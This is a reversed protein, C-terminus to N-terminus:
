TWLSGDYLRGKVSEMRLREVFDLLGPFLADAPLTPIFAPLPALDLGSPVSRLDILKHNLLVRDRHETLRDEFHLAKDLSWEYRRLTKVATKMGYRPVGPVGDSADGALAMADVLHRPECGLDAVVREHDWRDTPTGSSSMRVQEVQGPVLLQLFDKDSSLIVLKDDLPRHHRWYWAILDDAEWGRRQVHHVNALTLFHKALGFATDKDEEFESSGDLRHAKYGPDLAVRFESRGGDWCVVVKDPKEERIHRSLTNIFVLLAGTPVGGVHLGSGKMAHM